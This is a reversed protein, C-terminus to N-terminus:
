PANRMKEEMLYGAIEALRQFGWVDKQDIFIFEFVYPEPYPLGSKPLPPTKQMIESNFDSFDRLYGDLFFFGQYGLSKLIDPIVKTAGSRHQEEIEIHIIPKCREITKIAGELVEQEFGQVDIKLFTVDQFEFMDLPVTIIDQNIHTIEVTGEGKAIEDFDQVISSRGVWLVGDFYPISITEKQVTSGVALNYVTINSPLRDGNQKMLVSCMGLYAQFVPEFAIVKSHPVRVLGVSCQGLNAGVDLLTGSRSLMPMLVANELVDM